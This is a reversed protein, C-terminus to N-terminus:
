RGVVRGARADTQAGGDVTLAGNVFLFRVGEAYRQPELYTARDTFAQPDFAVVSALKGEALVGRDPLRLVKAPLSTMKRVAEEVSLRQLERVHRRFVRPFTGFSRPHGTRGAAPAASGDSAVLCWPRGLIRDMQQEDIGFGLISVSGRTLLDCALAFPEQGREKAAADVRKGLLEQDQKSLGNGLMLTGWGGNAAVSAETEARMREREAPDQLRKVFQGGEKSWAPYNTALSTQWAEYPYCDAHVEHDKRAAEIRALVTDLKPWNRDGGVKLHSILLPAKSRRAIEIAEDVAEVVRDDENRIHTVYPRDHKGAIKCLEILEDTTAANGPFYELGSSLGLAGEDFAQEITKQMSGLEDATPARGTAGLVRRRVTGHGVYSGIDIAIAGHQKQWTARSDCVDEPKDGEDAAEPFPSGGDPGCVDMTVGQAVKSQAAANRRLDSHAHADVFGPAVVLGKADIARATTATALDGIAAIRDGAIAVDAIRGPAGTGDVVTGGTLVFDFRARRAGGNLRGAFALAPAAALSRLVFSRRTPLSPM